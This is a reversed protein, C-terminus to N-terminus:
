FAGEGDREPPCVAILFPVIRDGAPRVALQALPKLSRTAANIPAQKMGKRVLPWAAYTVTGGEAAAAAASFDL